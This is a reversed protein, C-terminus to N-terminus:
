KSFSMKWKIRKDSEENQKMVWLANYKGAAWTDIFSLAISAARLTM